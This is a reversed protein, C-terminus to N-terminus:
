VGASDSSRTKGKAREDRARKRMLTEYARIGLYGRKKERIEAEEAEEAEEEEEEKEEKAEEEEGGGGKTKMRSTTNRTIERRKRRGIAFRRIGPECDGPLDM